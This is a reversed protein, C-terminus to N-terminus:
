LFMCTCGDQERNRSLSSPELHAEGNSPSGDREVDGGSFWGKGPPEPQLIGSNGKQQRHCRFCGSGSLPDVVPSLDSCRHRRVGGLALRRGAALISIFAMYTVSGHLVPLVPSWEPIFVLCLAPVM